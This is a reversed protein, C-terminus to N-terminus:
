STGRRSRARCWGDESVAAIHRIGFRRMRGIARYLFADDPVTVLPRTAIAAVPRDLTESGRRHLARLIDRETVIGLESSPANAQGVFLSGIRADIMVALADRVSADEGVFAPPSSMLDHVRHRYPYSDLRREVRRDANPLDIGPEVWGARHYDEM